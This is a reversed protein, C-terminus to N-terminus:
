LGHLRPLELAFMRSKSLDKCQVCSGVKSLDSLSHEMKRKGKDSMNIFWLNSTSGCIFCECYYSGFCGLLCSIFTEGSQVMIYLRMYPHSMISMIQLNFECDRVCTKLGSEGNIGKMRDESCLVFHM